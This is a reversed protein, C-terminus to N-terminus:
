DKIKGFTLDKTGERRNDCDDAILKFQISDQFSRIKYIGVVTSDCGSDTLYITDHKMTYKGTVFHKGDMFADYSGDKKFRGEFDYSKGQFTGKKLWKGEISSASDEKKVNSCSAFVLMSLLYCYKKM